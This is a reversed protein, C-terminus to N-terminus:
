GRCYRQRSGSDPYADEYSSYLAYWELVGAYNNRGNLAYGIAAEAQFLEV